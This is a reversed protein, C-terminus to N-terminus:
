TDSQYNPQLLEVVERNRLTPKRDTATMRAWFAQAAAKPWFCARTKRPRRIQILLSAAALGAGLYFLPAAEGGRALAGFTRYGYLIM